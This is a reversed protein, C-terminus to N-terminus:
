KISRVSPSGKEKLVAQRRSVQRDGQSRGTEKLGAPRRSVQRDGQSRGTEKLGAQTYTRFPIPNSKIKGEVQTSLINVTAKCVSAQEIIM